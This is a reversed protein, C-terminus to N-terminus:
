RRAQVLPMLAAAIRAAIIEHGAANLHLSDIFNEAPLLDHLDLYAFGRREAEAALWANYRALWEAGYRRNYCTGQPEHIVPWNVVLVGRGSRARIDALYELPNWQAFNAYMNDNQQLTEECPRLPQAKPM